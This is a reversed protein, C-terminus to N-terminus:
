LNRSLYIRAADPMELRKAEAELLADVATEDGALAALAIAVDLDRTQGDEIRVALLTTQL